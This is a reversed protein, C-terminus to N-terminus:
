LLHTMLVSVTYRNVALKIRGGISCSLHMHESTCKHLKQLPKNWATLLYINSLIQKYATRLNWNYSHGLSCPHLRNQRVQMRPSRTNQWVSFVRSSPSQDRPNPPERRRWSPFVSRWRSHSLFLKHLRSVAQPDNKWLIPCSSFTIYRQLMPYSVRAERLWGKNLPHGPGALGRDHGDVPYPIACEVTM